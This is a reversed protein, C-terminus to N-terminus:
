LTLSQAERQPPAKTTRAQIVCSANVHSMSAGNTIVAIDKGTSIKGEMLYILM